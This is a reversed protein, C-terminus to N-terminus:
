MPYYQMFIDIDKPDICMTSPITIVIDMKRGVVQHMDYLFPLQEPQQYDYPRINNSSEFCIKFCNLAQLIPEVDQPM